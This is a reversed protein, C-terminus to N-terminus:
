HTLVIGRYSTLKLLAQTKKMPPKMTMAASLTLSCGDVHGRNNWCVLVSVVEVCHLVTDIGSVDVVDHFM